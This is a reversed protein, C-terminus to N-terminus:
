ESVDKNEKQSASYFQSLLNENDDVTGYVNDFRQLIADISAEPGLQMLVRRANGRLSRRISQLITSTKGGDKILCEVEYHWLDYSTEGKKDGLFFPLKPTISTYSTTEKSSCSADNYQPMDSQSTRPATWNAYSILWSKLEKTTRLKPKVGLEKFSKALQQLEDQTFDEKSM